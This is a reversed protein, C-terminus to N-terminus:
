LPWRAKVVIPTDDQFGAQFRLYGAYAVMAANDTCFALRPCYLQADLQDLKARLAVNASVGGAIVLRPLRTLELARRCKIALTDVM